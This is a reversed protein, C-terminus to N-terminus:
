QMGGCLMEHWFFILKIIVTTMVEFKVNSAHDKDYGAWHLTSFNCM